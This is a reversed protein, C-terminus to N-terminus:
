SFFGRLQGLGQSYSWIISALIIFPFLSLQEEKVSAYLSVVLLLFIGVLLIGVVITLFGLIALIPLFVFSGFILLQALFNSAKIASLNSREWKGTGVGFRFQQKWYQRVSCRRNHVVFLSGLYRIQKGAQKLRFHLETEEATPLKENFGGADILTAKRYASNCGIVNDCAARTSEWSNTLSLLDNQVAGFAKEIKSSKEPTKTSGGLVDLTEDEFNSVIQTLWDKPVECDDDTFAIIDGQAHQIGVNCGSARTEGEEFFVKNTYKKAIEITNDKSHGDVVIIEFNTYEQRVLSQLCNSLTSSSNKTPIVVSVHPDGM